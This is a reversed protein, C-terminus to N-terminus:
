RVKGTTTSTGGFPTGNPNPMGAAGGLAGGAITGIGTNGTAFGGVISGASGAGLSAQQQQSIQTLPLSSFVQSKPPKGFATTWLQQASGSGGALLLVIGIAGLFLGGLLKM